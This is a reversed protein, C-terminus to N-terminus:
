RVLGALARLLGFFGGDGIASAVELPQTLALWILATAFTSTAVGILGLGTLIRGTAM